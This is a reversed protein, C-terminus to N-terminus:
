EDALGYKKKLSEDYAAKRAECRERQCLQCSFFTVETPFVIGSISKRPLMLMSDTLRVGVLEGTNGILSFLAKQETIPWNPLSGPSMSSIKELGYHKKLHKELHQKGLSLVIDATTELYYQRLLDDMASANEELASGITIVYPFVRETNELNKKLISSTFTQGEIEVSEEGRREIYSVKYVIKPTILAGATEILDQAVA